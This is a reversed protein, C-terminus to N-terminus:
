IASLEPEPAQAAAEAPASLAPRRRKGKVSAATNSALRARAALEADVYVKGHSTGCEGLWSCLSNMERQSWRAPKTEPDVDEPWPVPYQSVVRHPRKKAGGRLAAAIVILM